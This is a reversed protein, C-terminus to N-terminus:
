PRLTEYKMKPSTRVLLADRKEVTAYNLKTELFWGHFCQRTHGLHTNRWNRTYSAARRAPVNRAALVPVQEWDHVSIASETRRPPRRTCDCHHRQIRALAFLSNPLRTCGGSGSIINHSYSAEGSCSVLWKEFRTMLVPQEGNEM